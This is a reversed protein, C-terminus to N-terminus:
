STANAYIMCIRRPARNYTCWYAKIFGKESDSDKGLRELTPPIWMGIRHTELDVLFIDDDNCEKDYFVPIDDFTMLGAFGFRSSVPVVRQADDYLSKIMDYQIPSVFFVLNNDSAGEERANRIASRLNTKSVKASAANIFTNGAADPALQNATSRTLNYLTTNGASDALYEFGIVGAATELGVEAYLATNMVEMLDDTSDRVEQAFVDGLPGGRAAAIMDGDVEVGVQYKKFKTQLKLRGIVGTTVANGTYAAATTNRVTKITFQVQNNGKNSYDDKMLTNWTTIKQNLYNYIVPDFVDSLEAGSLLYDTDTNQNTTIGLSKMELKNGVIRFNKFERSEAMSTTKVGGTTLGLKDALAAASKFQVDVHASTLTEKFEVFEPLEEKTNVMTKTKVEVTELAEKVEEKVELVVKEKTEVVQKEKFEKFLAMDESSITEKAEEEVKVEPEAVVEKEPTVEPEETKTEPEAKTEEAVPTITVDESQEKIEPVPEKTIETMTKEEMLTNHKIEKLMVAHENMPQSALTWGELITGPLLTRIISGGITEEKAANPLYDGTLIDKTTFEISFSDLLNNDVRYKTEEYTEKTKDIFSDVFLGFHGDNLLDVRATGKMGVGTVLPERVHNVSVKNSRPNANNIESAWLDLTEKAITDKIFVGKSEDFFGSDLHTTAIYGSVILEDLEKVEYGYVISNQSRSVQNSSSIKTNKITETM